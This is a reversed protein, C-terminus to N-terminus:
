KYGNERLACGVHLMLKIKFANSFDTSVAKELVSTFNM